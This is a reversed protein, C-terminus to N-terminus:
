GHAMASSAESSSMFDFHRPCFDNKLLVIASWHEGEEKRVPCCKVSRGHKLMGISKITECAM